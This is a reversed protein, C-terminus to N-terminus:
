DFVTRTEHPLTGGYLYETLIATVEKSLKKLNEQETATFKGLVFDASDAKEAFDNHIGVRIRDVNENGHQILSKIGNHGASGGGTRMRIQGFPVDLEDHIVVTDEALVKYFHQVAQVAEGSLNMYTHPKVLVVRKNNISQVSLECKLDKKQTWKPFDNSEAFQDICYFGINHRTLNYEAGINGLGVIVVTKELGLNYLPMNDNTEKKVFLGM